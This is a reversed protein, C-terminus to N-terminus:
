QSEFKQECVPARSKGVRVFHLQRRPYDCWQKAVKRNLYNMLDQVPALPEMKITNGSVDLVTDDAPHKRLKFKLRKTLM